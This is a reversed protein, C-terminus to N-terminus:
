KSLIIKRHIVIDDIEIRLHYIGPSVLGYSANRGNWLLKHVGSTFHQKTTIIKVRQGLQNLVEVQVQADEQLNIEITVEDSFPNPYCNIETTASGPLGDLGTTAYKELSAVTTEHKTFTSTGKIIEPELAFKRNNESKWLKLSFQNGEAFGPMGQKDSASAAISVSQNKLHHPMLTVAGVCTEGDFIALEDGAKLMNVPLGVMNINMHDVGNGEFETQYHTAAVLEPLITTSKPYNEYIWLTDKALVKIKFGEGPTFNGINNQWGGFIGWDEISNGKEDQVKILTGRDLLQQIVNLGSYETQHPFGAINWGSNLPVAFPYQV